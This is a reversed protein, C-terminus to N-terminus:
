AFYYISIYTIQDYMRIHKEHVSRSGRVRRRVPGTERETKRKKPINEKGTVELNRGFSM